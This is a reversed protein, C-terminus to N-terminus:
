YLIVSQQFWKPFMSRHERYLRAIDSDLCYIQGRETESRIIRGASQIISSVAGAAYWLPDVEMRTKVQLDGLYGFPAKALACWTAADGAFDFGEVMSPTILITPEEIRTHQLYAADREEAKRPFIVRSAHRSHLLATAISEGIAYSNSHILGKEQAHRDALRGIVRLLAPLTSGANERGMSGVSLMHVRRNEPPFTSALNIWAVADEDLGLSRCFISKVGPYASMYVRLHGRNLLTSHAFPAADLPRATHVPGDESKETWFVWRIAGDQMLAASQKTKQMYQAVEAAKTASEDDDMQLLMELYTQIAPVYEALLWARFDGLGGFKAPVGTLGLAFREVLVKKVCTESFRLIVQELNHSEDGILVRRQPLQGAHLHETILFPYNTLACTAQTFASKAAQYTCTHPSCSGKSKAVRGVGCNRYKLCPYEAATKLSAVSNLGPILKPIDREIQTQLMKQTVLYYAGPQGPLDLISAWNAITIGMATKGSNHTVVFSDLLYLGDGDLTFGYYTDEGLPELEFKQRVGESRSENYRFPPKAIRFPIDMLADHIALVHQKAQRRKTASHELFACYGLSRLLRVLWASVQGSRMSARFTIRKGYGKGTWNFDYTTRLADLIGAIMQRRQPVATCLDNDSLPVGKVVADYGHTYHDAIGEDIWCDFRVEASWLRYKKAHAPPLELFDRITVNDAVSHRWRTRNETYNDDGRELSLVHDENCVFPETFAPVVRFMRGVGRCLNQVLRPASDPGMLVDGVVIEEVAKTAGNYLVVRTGAAHCGTPASIVIDRVGAQVAEEVADLAIGQKERMVPLPFFDRIMM